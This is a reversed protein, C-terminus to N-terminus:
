TILQFIELNDKSRFLLYLLYVMSLKENKYNKKISHFLIKIENTCKYYNIIDYSSYGKDYLENTIKFLSIEDNLCKSLIRNLQTSKYKMHKIYEDNDEEIKKRKYVHLNTPKNSIIPYCVHIDCFRSLIPRLLQQKSQVIMFFRTNTSFLEICRRLASQADVTLRDANYLIISKFKNKSFVHSKAFQKIDERIFQIGKGLACNINMVNERYENSDNYIKKIFDMLLTKKGSGYPGYLLIHPVNNNKLFVDFKEKIESHINM